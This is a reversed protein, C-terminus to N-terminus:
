AKVAMRAAYDTRSFLPRGGTADFYEDIARRAGEWHGYDDVLLVGGLSLRPYLHEMEHKTSEYWDTDLRLVAIQDPGMGPLTEEVPGVVFHIRERPYGTGYILSEVQEVTFVDEGFMYDWARRGKARAERFTLAAPPDFRSTDVGSPETMGTFTDCLYVDRDDVGLRQLTLIMALVSGGHWVGCELLAGDIRRRVVHEVADANAVIREPSILTHPQCRAVLSSEEETLCSAVTARAASPTDGGSRVLRRLASLASM